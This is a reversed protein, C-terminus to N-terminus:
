EVLHGCNMAIAQTVHYSYRVVLDQWHLERLGPVLIDAASSDELM